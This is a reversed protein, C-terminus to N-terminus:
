LYSLYMFNRMFINTRSKIATSQGPPLVSLTFLIRRVNSAQVTAVGASDYGTFTASSVGSLLLDNGRYLSIGNLRFNTATATTDTFNIQTSSISTLKGSGLRQVERTVRDVAYRIDDLTGERDSAFIYTDMGKTIIVSTVAFLAAMILSSLIIELLTFGRKNSLLSIPTSM